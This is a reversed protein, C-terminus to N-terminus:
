LYKASAWSLEDSWELPRLPDADVLDELMDSFIDLQDEHGYLGIKTCEYYPMNFYIDDLDDFCTYTNPALGNRSQSIMRKSQVNDVYNKFAQPDTRFHDLKLMLSRINTWYEDAPFEPLIMPKQADAVSVAMVLFAAM